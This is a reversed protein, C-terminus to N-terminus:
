KEYDIEKKNHDSILYSNEMIEVLFYFCLLML